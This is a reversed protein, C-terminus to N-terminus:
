LHIMDLGLGFKTNHLTNLDQYLHNSSNSQLILKHHSQLKYMVKIGKAEWMNM